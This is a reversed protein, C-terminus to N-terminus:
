YPVSSRFSLFLSFDNGFGVTHSLLLLSRQTDSIHVFKQVWAICSIHPITVTEDPGTDNVFPQKMVTEICFSRESVNEIVHEPVPEIHVSLHDSQIESTRSPRTKCRAAVQRPRQAMTDSEQFQRMEVAVASEVVTVDIQASQMKEFVQVKGVTMGHFTETQVIAHIAHRELSTVTDSVDSEEFIHSAHVDDFAATDNVDSRETTRSHHFDICATSIDVKSTHFTQACHEFQMETVDSRQGVVGKCAVSCDFPQRDFRTVVDCVQLLLLWVLVQTENM